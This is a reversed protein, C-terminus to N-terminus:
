GFAYVSTGQRVIRVYSGTGLSGSNHTTGNAGLSSRGTVYVVPSGVFLFQTLQPSSGTQGRDLAELGSYVGDAAINFGAGTSLLRSNSDAILNSAVVDNGTFNFGHRGNDQASCNTIMCRTSDILFGDAPNESFYAKCGTMMTNGGGLRFGAKGGSGGSARCGIVQSDSSGDIWLCEDVCNWLVCDRIVMERSGGSTGSCWIGCRGAFLVWVNDIQHYPDKATKISYPFTATQPDQVYKIGHGNFTVATERGITLNTVRTHATNNNLLEICGRDVNTSWMPRIMTGRGNGILTTNPHMTICGTGNNGVYFTPGVLLVAVNGEAGSFGDSPRTAKALAANIQVQDDVGDCVFDCLKKQASTAENSAVTLFGRHGSAAIGDHVDTAWDMWSTDGSSPLPVVGSM